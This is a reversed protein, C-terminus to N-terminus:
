TCFENLFKDSFSKIKRWKWKPPMHNAKSIDVYWTWVYVYIYYIGDYNKSRGQNRKHREHCSLIRASIVTDSKSFGFFRYMCCVVLVGSAASPSMKYQFAAPIKLQSTKPWITSRHQQMLQLFVLIFHCISGKLSPCICSPFNVKSVAPARRAVCYRKRKVPEQEEGKKKRKKGAPCAPLSSTVFSACPLPPPEFLLNSHSSSPLAHSTHHPPPSVCILDHIMVTRVTPALPRPSPPWWFPRSTSPSPHRDLSQSITLFILHM